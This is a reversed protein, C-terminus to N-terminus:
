VHSGEYLKIIDNWDYRSGIYKSLINLFGRHGNLYYKRRLYYNICNDFHLPSTGTPGPGSLKEINYQKLIESKVNAPLNISWQLLIRQPHTFNYKM